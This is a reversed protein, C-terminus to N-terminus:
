EKKELKIKNLLDDFSINEKNLMNEIMEFQELKQSRELEAIVNELEKIKENLIDRRKTLDILRTKNSNIKKTYDM